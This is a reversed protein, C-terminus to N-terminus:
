RSNQDRYRDPDYIAHTNGKAAADFMRNYFEDSARDRDAGAALRDEFNKLGVMQPVGDEPTAPDKTGGGLVTRDAELAREDDTIAVRNSPPAADVAGIENGFAKVADATLEGEYARLALKGLTSETDIGAKVFLLERRAALSEAQASDTAKAKERLQRLNADEDGQEDHTDDDNAM